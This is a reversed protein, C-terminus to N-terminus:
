RRPRPPANARSISARRLGRRSSLRRLSRVQDHADGEVGSIGVGDLVGRRDFVLEPDQDAMALRTAPGHDRVIGIRRDRGVEDHGPRARQRQQGGGIPAFEVQDQDLMLVAQEAVQGVMRRRELAQVIHADADGGQAGVPDGLQVDGELPQHGLHVEVDQRGLGLAAQVGVGLGALRGASSGEAIARRWAALDLDVRFLGVDHSRRERAEGGALCPHLDGAVEVGLTHGPGAAAGPSRSAQGSRALAGVADQTALHIVAHLDPVAEAVGLIGGGAALDQGHAGLGLPLARGHGLQGDDIGLSPRGDLRAEGLDALGPRCLQGPPDIGAQEGPKQFAPAAARVDDRNIRPAHLAARGLVAAGGGAVVSPDHAAILDFLPDQVAQAALQQRGLRRGSVDAGVVGSPRGLSALAAIPATRDLFAEGLDLPRDRADDVSDAVARVCRRHGRAQLVELGLFRGQRDVQLGDPGVLWHLQVGPGGFEVGLADLDKLGAEALDAGLRRELIALQHVGDARQGIADGQRRDGLLLPRVHLDIDLAVQRLEKM